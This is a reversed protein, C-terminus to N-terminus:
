RSARHWTSARPACRAISWGAWCCVAWRLSWRLRWRCLNFALEAAEIHLAEALSAIFHHFPNTSFDGPGPLDDPHRGLRRRRRLGGAGDAPHDDVHLHQRARQRARGRRHAAQRLLDDRDPADHLLRDALRQVGPRCVRYQAREGLRRGPDRGQELLRRDRHPVREVGARRHPFDVGHAADQPVARGHQAHRSSRLRAASQTIPHCPSQGRTGADGRRRTRAHGSM